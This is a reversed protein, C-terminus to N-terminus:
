RNALGSILRNLRKICLRTIGYDPNIKEIELYMDRAKKHDGNYYEYRAALEYRITLKDDTSMANSQLLAQEGKKIVCDRDAQGDCSQIISITLDSSPGGANGTEVFGATLIVLIFLLTKTIKGM